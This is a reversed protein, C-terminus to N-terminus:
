IQKYPKLGFKEMMAKNHDNQVVDVYSGKIIVLTTKMDWTDRGRKCYCQTVAFRPFTQTSNPIDQESIIGMYGSGTCVPCDPNTKGLTGSNKECKALLLSLTITIRSLGPDKAREKCDDLVSAVAKELVPIPFKGLPQYWIMGGSTKLDKTGWEGSFALPKMAEKYAKEEDTAKM